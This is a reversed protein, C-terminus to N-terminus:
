LDEGFIYLSRSSARMEFGDLWGFPPFGLGELVPEGGAGGGERHSTGGGLHPPSFGLGAASRVFHWAGSFAPLDSHSKKM